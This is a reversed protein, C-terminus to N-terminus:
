KLDSKFVKDPSVSVIVFIDPLIIVRWAQFIIRFNM